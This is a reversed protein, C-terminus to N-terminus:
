THPLCSIQNLDSLPCVLTELFPFFLLIWDKFLNPIQHLNTKTQNTLETLFLNAICPLSVTGYFIMKKTRAWHSILSNAWFPESATRPVFSMLRGPYKLPWLYCSHTLYADWVRVKLACFCCSFFNLCLHWLDLPFESSIGFRFLNPLEIYQRNERGM